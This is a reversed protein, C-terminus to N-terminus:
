KFLSKAGLYAAGAGALGKVIKRKRDLSKAEFLNKANQIKAGAFDAENQLKTKLLKDKIEGPIEGLVKDAERFRGLQQGIEPQSIGLAQTVVDKGNRLQSKAIDSLGTMKEAEQAFKRANQLQEPSLLKSLEEPSKNTLRGLSEAVRAVRKPDSIAAEFDATALFHLGAKEEADILGAKAAEKVARAAALKEAGREGANVLAKQGAATLDTLAQQGALAVEAAGPKTILDKALKVGKGAGQFLKGGAYTLAATTAGEKVVPLAAEALTPKQDGLSSLIAQKIGEGAAAGAGALAATAPLSVGGTGIAGVIPAGIGGVTPLANAVGRIFKRTKSDGAHPDSPTSEAPPNSEPPTQAGAQHERAAGLLDAESAGDPGEIDFQNGDLEVTYIAM